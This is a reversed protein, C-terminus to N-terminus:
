RAKRSMSASRPDPSGPVARARAEEGAESGAHDNLDAVRDTLADAAAFLLRSVDDIGTKHLHTGAADV